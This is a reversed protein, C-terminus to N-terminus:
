SLFHSNVFLYNFTLPFSLSLLIILKESKKGINKLGATCPRSNHRGRFLFMNIKELKDSINVVVKVCAHM